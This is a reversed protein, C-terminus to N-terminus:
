FNQVDAPAILARALFMVGCGAHVLLVGICLLKLVSFPQRGIVRCSEMYVIYSGPVMAWFFNGSYFQKLETEALLAYQSISIGLILWALLARRERWLARPFCAAVTCPFVLGLIIAMPVRRMLVEARIQNRFGVPPPDLFTSWVAWPDFVIRNQSGFTYFCQWLLAGVPLIFAVCPMLLARRLPIRGTRYARWLDVALVLGFGPLFALLYNPKALACLAGAIGISLAMQYGPNELYLIAQHFLLLAFPAAFIATPNHWVNPNVIGRYISPFHQWWPLGDVEDLYDSPSVWGNPLAMALALLFCTVAAAYKSLPGRLERYTLWARMGLALALVIAASQRAGNWDQEPVFSLVLALTWHFLPYALPPSDTAVRGYLIKSIHVYFDSIKPEKPLLNYIVVLALAFIAVATITGVVSSAFQKRDDVSDAPLPHASESIGETSRPRFWRGVAFRLDRRNSDDSM